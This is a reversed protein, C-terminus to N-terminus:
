VDALYRVSVVFKLVLYTLCWGLLPSGSIVFNVLTADPSILISLLITTMFCFLCAFGINSGKSDDV